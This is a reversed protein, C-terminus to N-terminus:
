ITEQGQKLTQPKYPLMYDLRWRTEKASLPPLPVIFITSSGMKERQPFHM